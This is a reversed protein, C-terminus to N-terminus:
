LLIVVRNLPLNNLKKYNNIVKLLIIIRQMQQKDLSLQLRSLLIIKTGKTDLNRDKLERRLEIVKLKTPDMM